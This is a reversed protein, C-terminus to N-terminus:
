SGILRTEVESLDESYPADLLTSIGSFPWQRKGSADFLLDAVKKFEPNFVDDGRADAYKARLQELKKKDM